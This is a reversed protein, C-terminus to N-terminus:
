GEDTVCLELLAKLEIWARYPGSTVVSRELQM